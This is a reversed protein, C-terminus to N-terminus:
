AGTSTLLELATEMSASTEHATGDTFRLLRRVDAPAQFADTEVLAVAAPNVHWPPLTGFSQTEWSPIKVLRVGCALLRKRFETLSARITVDGDSGLFRVDTLQDPHDAHEICCKVANARFAFPFGKRDTYADIFM